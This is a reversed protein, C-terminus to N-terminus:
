EADPESEGLPLSFVTAPGEMSWRIVGSEDVFFHQTGTEGPVIPDANVTFTEGEGNTAFQYVRFESVTSTECGVPTGLYEKAM